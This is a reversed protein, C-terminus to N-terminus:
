LKRWFFLAFLKLTRLRNKNGVKKLTQFNKLANVLLEYFLKLNNFNKGSNLYFKQTSKIYIVFTSLNSYLYAYIEPNIGPIYEFLSIIDFIAEKIISKATYIFNNNIFNSVQQAKTPNGVFYTKM